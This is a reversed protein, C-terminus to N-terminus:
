VERDVEGIVFEIEDIIDTYRGHYPCSEENPCFDAPCDAEPPTGGSWESWTPPITRVYECNRCFRELFDDSTIYAETAENQAKSM